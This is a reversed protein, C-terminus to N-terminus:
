PSVLPTPDIYIEYRLIKEDRLSFVNCFPLVVSRGDLRIYTVEGQCVASGPEEWAHAIRHESLRISGFFGNVVAAIADHGTAPAGSGYRFLADPTLFSLFERTNKADVAAFLARWRETSAM